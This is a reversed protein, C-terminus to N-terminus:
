DIEINVTKKKGHKHKRGRGTSFAGDQIFRGKDYYGRCFSAIKNCDTLMPTLTAIRMKLNFVVQLDTENKVALRLEKLRARLLAASEAYELALKEM